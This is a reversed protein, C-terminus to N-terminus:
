GSWGSPDVLTGTDALGMAKNAQLGHARDRIALLLVEFRRETRFALGTDVCAPVVDM